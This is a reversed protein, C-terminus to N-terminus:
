IASSANKVPVAASIVGILSTSALIIPQPELPGIVSFICDAYKSKTAPLFSFYILYKVYM